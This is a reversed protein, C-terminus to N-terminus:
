IAVHSCVRRTYTFTENMESVPWLRSRPPLLVQRARVQVCIDHASPIELKGDVKQLYHKDSTTLEHHFSAFARSFFVTTSGSEYIAAARGSSYLSGQTAGKTMFKWGLATFV